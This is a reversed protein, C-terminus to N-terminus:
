SSRGMRLTLAYLRPTNYAMREPAFDRMTEPLLYYSQAGSASDRDPYYTFAAVLSVDALFREYSTAGSEDAIYVRSPEVHDFRVERTVPGESWQLTKATGAVTQSQSRAFSRRERSDSAPPINPTWASRPATAANFTVFEGANAVTVDAPNFGLALALDVSESWHFTGAESQSDFVVRIVGSELTVTALGFTVSSSNVAGNIATSLAARVAEATSYTGAALAGSYSVGSATFRFAGSTSTVILSSFAWTVAPITAM